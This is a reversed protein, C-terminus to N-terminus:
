TNNTKESDGNTLGGIMQQVIPFEKKLEEFSHQCKECTTYHELMIKKLDDCLLNEMKEKITKSLFVDFM